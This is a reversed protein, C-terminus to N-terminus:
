GFRKSSRTSIKRKKGLWAICVPLGHISNRRARRWGLQDGAVLGTPERVGGCRAKTGRSLASRAREQGVGGAGPLDVVSRARERGVGIVGGGSSSRTPWGQIRGSNELRGDWDSTLKGVPRTEGLSERRGLKIGRDSDLWGLDVRERETAALWWRSRVLESAHTMEEGPRVKSSM